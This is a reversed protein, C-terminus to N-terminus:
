NILKRGCPLECIYNLSNMAGMSSNFLQSIRNEISEVSTNKSFERQFLYENDRVKNLKDLTKFATYIRSLKVFNKWYPNFASLDCSRVGNEVEEFPNTIM